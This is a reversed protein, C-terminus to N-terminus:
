WKLFLIQIQLLLVFLIEKWYKGVTFALGGINLVAASRNINELFMQCLSDQKLSYITLM